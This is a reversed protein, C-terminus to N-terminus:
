LIEWIKNKKVKSCVKCVVCRRFNSSLIHFYSISGVLITSSVSCVRNQGCVSLCIFLCRPSYCLHKTILSYIFIRRSVWFWIQYPPTYWSPTGCPWPSEDAGLVVSGNFQLKQRAVVGLVCITLSSFLWNHCPYVSPCPSVLLLAFIMCIYM